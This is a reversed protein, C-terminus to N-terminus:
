SEEWSKFPEPKSFKDQTWTRPPAICPCPDRFPFSSPNTLAVQSPDFLDTGFALCAKFSVKKQGHGSSFRSGKHQSSLSIMPCVFYTVTVLEGSVVMGPIYLASESIPLIHSLQYNSMYQSPGVLDVVYLLWILLYSIDIFFM